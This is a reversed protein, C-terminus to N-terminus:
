QLLICKLIIKVDVGLDGLNSNREPKGISSENEFRMEGM